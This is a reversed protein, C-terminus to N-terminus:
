GRRAFIAFGRVCCSSRPRAGTGRGRNARQVVDNEATGRLVAAIADELVAPDDAFAGGGVEVSFEHVYAGTDDALKTPLEGIVRFGFNELVPVADSLTLAGGLRYIKLRQEPGDQAPYLRVSRDSDDALGALRQIDAAAEEITSATRYSQPFTAAWRLALRAARAAGVQEALAAEANPVWGRVMQELRRDLPAADPMQGGARLDITYRTLAVVGDDLAISWNLIAGNAAAALM